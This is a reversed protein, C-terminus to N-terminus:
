VFNGELTKNVKKYYVAAKQYDSQFILASFNRLDINTDLCSRM